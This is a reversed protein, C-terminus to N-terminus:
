RKLPIDFRMRDRTLITNPFIKQADEALFKLEWDNYRPSYHILALKKVDAEKAIRAAQASTMHMKERATEEMDSGFMGECFFLDSQEVHSAISPLYLSDTVYSFKRGERAEGMVSSPDIIRGVYLTVPM